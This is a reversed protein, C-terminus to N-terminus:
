AGDNIETMAAKVVAHFLYDKMQQDFPLLSYAKMCPHEKKEPDKVPGYKWGDATKQAMCSIHSDEPTSDPNAIHYEVGAIASAKQWAPADDWVPQTHDGISMCYVRNVEHAIRAVTEINMTM